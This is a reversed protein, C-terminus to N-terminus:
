QKQEVGIKAFLKQKIQEDYVQWKLRRYEETHEGSLFGVPIEFAGALMKGGGLYQGTEDRGFVEKIFGDPDITIKSTRMSGVVKERNDQSTIIGYVIATHVNEETLLFDAAQPIADRDAARLYGIGAISFNETMLRNALAQQIVDMVHKSRSQSMIQSLLDIDVFQSLFGASHFDEASARIFGTTDAMLGHMLATATIMHERRSKNMTVLGQELYQAYITATSGVTRRIDSFAPKLREQAEHHDVVMLVPTGAAELVQVIEESSTGQNDVFVAGQYAALELSSDYPTLNIGLLRVLAINQQHSIKGDYTIDVEIDFERSILQHAFASAIADPDPFDHMVVLHREGRHEELIAAFETKAKSMSKQNKSPIAENTTM